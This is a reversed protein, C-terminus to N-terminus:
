WVKMVWRIRFGELLLLFLEVLLFDACDAHVLFLCDDEVAAVHSTVVAASLHSETVSAPFGDGLFNLEVSRFDFPKFMPTQCPTAM